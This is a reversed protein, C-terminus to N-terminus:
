PILAPIKERLKELNKFGEGSKGFNKLLEGEIQLSEDEIKCYNKGTEEEIRMSVGPDPFEFIDLPLEAM